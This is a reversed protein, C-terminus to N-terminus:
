KLTCMIFSYSEILMILSVTVWIIPASLAFSITFWRVLCIMEMVVHEQLLLWTDFVTMKSSMLLLEWIIRRIWTVHLTNKFIGANLGAKRGLIHKSYQMIIIFLNKYYKTQYTYIKNIHHLFCRISRITVNTYHMKWCNYKSVKESARYKTQFLYIKPRVEANVIKSTFIIKIMVFFTINLNINLHRM